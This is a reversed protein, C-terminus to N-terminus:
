LVVKVFTAAPDAIECPQLPIRAPLSRSKRCRPLAIPLPSVVLRQDSEQISGIDFRLGIPGTGKCSFSRITASMRVLSVFSHFVPRM